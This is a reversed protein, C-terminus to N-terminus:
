WSPPEYYWPPRTPDAARARCDETLPHDRGLHRECDALLAALAASVDEQRGSLAAWLAQQHRGALTLEHGHGLARASEDVTATLLSQAEPLRGTEGYLGALQLRSAFTWPHDPGFIAARDQVVKTLIRLAQTTDGSSALRGALNWLVDNTTRNIDGLVRRADAALDQWLRIAGDDRTWVAVEFRALFALPHDPGFLRLAREEVDLSLALAEQTRGHTGTWRAVNQTVGITIAHDDGYRGRVDDRLTSVLGLAEAGNGAAGSWWALSSRLSFLTEPPTGPPASALTTRLLRCAEDIQFRDGLLQALGSAATLVGGDLARTFADRAATHRMQGLATWGLDESLGPEAAAILRAWTTDPIPTTSPGADVADPLYDFVYYTDPQDRPLLLSSTALLPTTAWALAESWSEPRLLPGGRAALHDEHLERLLAVPLPRSWGARRAEVAASVLAAGRVHGSGPAWADQWATLLQPGAALLEAIGYRGANDVARALRSDGHHERAGDVEGQHWRRDLRIEHAQGLVDRVTRAGLADGAERANTLRAREQARITAVVVCARGVGPSAFRRLLSSTLAGAALHRDIDDLWVVSSRERQVAAAAAQLASSAAPDPAIFAAEPRVSRVAEFAARTKGATSEGVVLVFPRNRVAEEIEGSLDRRVFPPVRAGPVDADGMPAAPHVGADLPDALDRVRPVTGRDDVLLKEQFASSHRASEEVLRQGRQSLVAGATAAVAVVAGAVAGPLLRATLWSASSVGAAAGVLLWWGSRRIGWPGRVRMCKM